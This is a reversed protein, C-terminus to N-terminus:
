RHWPEVREDAADHQWEGTAHETEDGAVIGTGEEAAVDEGDTPVEAPEGHDDGDGHPDHEADDTHPSPAM